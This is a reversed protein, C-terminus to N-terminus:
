DKLPDYFTIVHLIDLIFIHGNGDPQTRLQDLENDSFTVDDDHKDGDDLDKQFRKRILHHSM